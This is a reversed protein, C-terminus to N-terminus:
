SGDHEGTAWDLLSGGEDFILAAPRYYGELPLCHLKEAPLTQRAAAEGCLRALQPSKKQADAATWQLSAARTEAWRDALPVYLFELAQEPVGETFALHVVRVVEEPSPERVYVWYPAAPGLRQWRGPEITQKSFSEKTMAHFSGEYFAVAQIRQGEVSVYGYILAAAQVLGICSFDLLLERRTKAPNFVMFTLTPGIVLDVVLMIRVGQWGGDTFFMPPPFWHVYILYLFPIFILASLAIHISLAALKHKFLLRTWM